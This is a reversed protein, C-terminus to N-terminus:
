VKQPTPWYIVHPRREKKKDDAATCARSAVVTRAVVRAARKHLSACSMLKGRKLILTWSGSRTLCRRTPTPLLPRRPRDYLPPSTGEDEAHSTGAPLIRVVPSLRPWPAVPPFVSPLVSSVYLWLCPRRRNCVPAFPPRSSLRPWHRRPVLLFVLAAFCLM